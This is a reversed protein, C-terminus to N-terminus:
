LELSEVFIAQEEFFELDLCEAFGVEIFFPLNIPENKHAVKPFRHPGKSSLQHFIDEIIHISVTLM